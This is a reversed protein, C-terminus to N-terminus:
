IWQSPTSTVTYAEGYILKGFPPMHGTAAALVLADFALVLKDQPTLKERPIVRVPIYAAPPTQGGAPGCEVLPIHAQMTPTQVRCDLLVRWRSQPLDHPLGEGYEARLRMYCQQKYVEICHHDWVAWAEPDGAMGSGKLHSKTECHLFADFLDDTIRM